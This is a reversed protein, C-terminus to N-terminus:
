EETIGAQRLGAGYTADFVTLIEPVESYRAEIACPESRLRLRTEPAEALETAARETEGKLAYAAALASHPFARAPNAQRAKESWIIADDFRSQLLHAIAIRGYMSSINPDRPESPNSLGRAPNGGRYARYAAQLRRSLVASLANSNLAIM